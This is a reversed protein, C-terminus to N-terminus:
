GAGDLRHARQDRVLHAAAEADAEGRGLAALVGVLDRQSIVGLLQGDQIVPLHRVWRDAMTQAADLVDAAPDVTLLTTTMVASVPTTAPDYGRAVTQMVDRETIIGLLADGDMVLLSGTQQSWMRAAAAQVSQGPEETVRAETMVEAVKM